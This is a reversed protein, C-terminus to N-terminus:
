MAPRAWALGDRFARSWRNTTSARCCTLNHIRTYHLSQQDGTYAVSLASASYLLTAQRCSRVPIWHVVSGALAGRLQERPDDRYAGPKWAPVRENPDPELPLGAFSDFGFITSPRLMQWVQRVSDGGAVGFEYFHLREASSWPRAWAGLLELAAAAPGVHDRWHGMGTTNCYHTAAVTTEHSYTAGGNWNRKLHSVIRGITCDCRGQTDQAPRKPPPHLHSRHKSAVSHSSHRPAPGGRAVALEVAALLM